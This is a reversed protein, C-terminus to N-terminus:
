PNNRRADTGGQGSSNDHSTSQQARFSAARQENLLHRVAEAKEEDTLPLNMIASIAAAFM